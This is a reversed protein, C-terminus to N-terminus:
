LDEWNDNINEWNVEVKNWALINLIINKFKVLGFNKTTGKLIFSM